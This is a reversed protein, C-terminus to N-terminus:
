LGKWDSLTLGMGVATSKHNYDIISEGYGHFIQLFGYVDEDFPHTYNLEIAGNGEGINYRGVGGLTKGKGLDYLMQLDGYGYYDTIDPNDSPNADTENKIHAWVRPMVTLKGWEAGGMLYLRNWSRSGPDGQGNSHHIAGAGLMRLKGDQPLNATVPLTLFLEPMYDNARFPRSEDENYVQWHMQQTYGFWLDANTDLLDQAVKTKFSIQAKLEVPEYEGRSYTFEEQTPTEPSRNPDFTAFVPLIYMPQYPRASWIGQESNKDLDFALSLPSYRGLDAESMGVEALVQQEDAPILPSIAVVESDVYSNDSTDVPEVVALTADSESDGLVVKPKGEKISAEVSKVINLPQKSTPVTSVGANAVKDYCALRASDTTLTACELFLDTSPPNANATTATNIATPALNQVKSDSQGDQAYALVPLSLMMPMIVKLVSLSLPSRSFNTKKQSPSVLSLVSFM